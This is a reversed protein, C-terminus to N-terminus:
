IRLVLPPRAFPPPSHAAASVSSTVLDPPRVPGNAVGTVNMVPLAMSSRAPAVGLGTFALWHHHEPTEADHHHGHIVIPIIEVPEGLHDDHHDNLADGHPGTLHVFTRVSLMSPAVFALAALLAVISRTNKRWV